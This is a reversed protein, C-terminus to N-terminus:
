WRTAASGAAKPRMTPPVSPAMDPSTWIKHGRHGVERGLVAADRDGRSRKRPRRRSATVLAMTALCAPWASAGEGREVSCGGGTSPPVPGADVNGMGADPVIVPDGVIISYGQTIACFYMGRAIVTFTYVADGAPLTGSLTGDTALSVGGPLTGSGLMYTFDGSLGTVSLTADYSAGPEGGPLAAPLFTLAPCQGIPRVNVLGECGNADTARIDLNTESSDGLTGSLTATSADWMLPAVLGGTASWTYPGTGGSATFTQAYPVGLVPNPITAPSITITPCDTEVTYTRAVSCGTADTATITVSGSAMGGTATGTISSGNIGLGPPLSGSTVQYTYPLMGGTTSLAQSYPVTSVVSPLTSPSLSLPNCVKFCTSFASTHSAAISIATATIYRGLPVDAGFSGVLTAHGSADTTIGAGGFLTEGRGGAECSASDFYEIAYETSPNGEFSGELSISGASPVASTLVPTSPLVSGTIGGTAHDFISNGEVIATGGSEFRVGHGNHAILNGNMLSGIRVATAGSVLVGTGNGLSGSGTAPVGIRNRFVAAGSGFFGIEVAAGTNGSIVNAQDAMGGGIIASSAQVTVGTGNPIALTGTHDTGIYNGVVRGQNGGLYVGTVNGSIVNRTAASNGGVYAIGLGSHVGIANPIAATGLANTGILNGAVTFTSGVSGEVGAGTNGSIVNGPGVYAGTTSADMQVGVGNPAAATGASNTGIYNGRIATGNCTGSAFVGAGVNESILNRDSAASGGVTVSSEYVWVGGRTHHVHCARIVSGPSSSFVVARDSFNRLELGAITASVGTVFFARTATGGTGDLAVLPTGVYGTQTTGDITTAVQVFPLPTALQILAPTSALAFSITHPAGAANANALTIAERLTGAGSDDTSTVTYTAASAASATALVVFASLLTLAPPASRM